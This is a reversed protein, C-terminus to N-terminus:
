PKVFCNLILYFSNNYIIGINIITVLKELETFRLSNPQTL